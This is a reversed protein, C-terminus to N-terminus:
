GDAVDGAPRPEKRWRDTTVYIVPLLNLTLLTGATLGGFLMIGLPQLLQPGHGLGIAAPILALLTTMHTLVMPRFRLSVAKCIADQAGLGELRAKRAFTLLVIANNVSVGILTILGLPLTIDLPQRLVALAIAAGMFDIPLKVLVVLPDLLNGLQFAVVGFVLITAGLMAWLAQVGTSLLQQYEGAYAVQVSPDLDLAAVARDLRRIVALPNGAIEAPMTLSRVGHQHEIVPYGRERSVRALRALPISRGDRTSVLLRELAVPENRAEDAYRVFIRMPKQNIIAVAADDGQMAIRVSTAIENAKVGLEACAERDVRVVIQDFQVKTNNVVNRIGPVAGAAKEVRAAADYLVDLDTSLVTIGFLAPLGSFSEDIKETTPENIRGIVGPYSALMQQLAERVARAPVTRSRRLRVVLEGEDPGEVYFSEEPSGTRRFVAEVAPMALLRAELEDGFRNSEILSTGPALEYSVLLSDEDLLPMFQIPSLALLAISGGLLVLAVVITLTRHRLLRSLFRDNVRGLFAIARAGRTPRDPEANAPRRLWHASAAPILAVSFVFSLVLMFSFTLGFPRFLQGALDTILLLPAFASLVTLTGALDPPFIERLGDLAARIPPKGMLRHRDINELVIISDDDILGIAVTLAALTMLNLGLGFLHMLVFTGLVAMPLTV